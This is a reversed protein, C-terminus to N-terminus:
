ALAKAKMAEFEQQTIAGSDLLQKAQAVQDAPSSAVDAVSRIYEAQEAQIQQAQALSRQAMGSGRAILYVLAGLFPAIIVFISWLAKGWGGLSDDRVIDAFIHFLMMLYAVLLFSGIVIWIFDWFSNM